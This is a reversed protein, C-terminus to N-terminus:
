NNREQEADRAELMRDAMRYSASAITSMSMDEKDGALIGTLAAMAFEDRLTRYGSAVTAKDKCEGVPSEYNKPQPVRGCDICTDQEHYGHECYGLQALTTIGLDTLVYESDELRIQKNDALHDITRADNECGGRAFKVLPNM